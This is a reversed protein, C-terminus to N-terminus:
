FLRPPKPTFRGTARDRRAFMEAYAGSAWRSAAQKMISHYSRANRKRLMEQREAIMRKIRERGTVLFAEQIQEETYGLPLAKRRLRELPTLPMRLKRRIEAPSLGQAELRLVKRYWAADKQAQKERRRERRAELREAREDLDEDKEQALAALWRPDALMRAIPDDKPKRPKRKM